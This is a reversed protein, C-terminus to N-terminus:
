ILQKKSRTEKYLLIFIAIFSLPPLILGIMQVEPIFFSLGSLFTVSSALIGVILLIKKTTENESKIEKYTKLTIKIIFFCSFMILIGIGKWEYWEM